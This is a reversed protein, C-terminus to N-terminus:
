IFHLQKFASLEVGTHKAAAWNWMLFADCTKLNIQERYESPVIGMAVELLHKKWHPKTEFHKRRKLTYVEIWSLPRILNPEIGSAACMGKIVGKGEMLTGASVIGQKPMTYVNEAVVQRAYRLRDWLWFLDDQMPLIHLENRDNFVIGGNIGIDVAMIM